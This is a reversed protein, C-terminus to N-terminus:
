TSNKRLRETFVNKIQAQHINNTFNVAAILKVLKKRVKKHSVYDRLKETILNKIQAKQTWHFEHINNNFNVATILKVLKKRM